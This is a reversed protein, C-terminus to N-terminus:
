KKIAESYGNFEVYYGFSNYGSYEVELKLLCDKLTVRRLDGKAAFAFIECM